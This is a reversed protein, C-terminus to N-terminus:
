EWCQSLSQQSPNQAAKQDRLSCLSRSILSPNCSSGSQQIFTCIFINDNSNCPLLLCHQHDQRILLLDLGPPVMTVRRGSKRIIVTLVQYKQPHHLINYGCQM